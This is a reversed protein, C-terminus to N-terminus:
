AAEPHEPLVCQEARAGRRRFRHRAQLLQDDRILDSALKIKARTQENVNPLDSLWVVTLDDHGPEIDDGYFLAELVAAAMVTKGAGTPASLTIAQGDGDVGLKAVEAMSLRIAETAKASTTEQFPLLTFRM